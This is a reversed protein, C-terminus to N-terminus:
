ILLVSCLGKLGSSMALTTSVAVIKLKSRSDISLLNVYKIATVMRSDTAKPIVTDAEAGIRTSNVRSYRELIHNAQIALM